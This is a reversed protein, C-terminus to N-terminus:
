QNGLALDHWVDGEAPQTEQTIDEAEDARDASLTPLLLDDDPLTDRMWEEDVIDILIGLSLEAMRLRSGGPRSASRGGILWDDSSSTRPSSSWDDSSRSRANQSWSNESKFSRGGRRDDDRGSGGWSGGSSSRGGRSMGGRSNGRERNFRGYNDSPPGDDQLTPMKTVRTVSNGPPLQKNLLEKAIEEPLDFVAGSVREDTIIHIRGVEDAAAPCVDSLFGTVSRASLYGRSMSEDRTFQLTVLGQEHTILSRSTPPKSFGSLQALAAALAKTGQEEFLKQATPIFFEVSDPHVGNLTSVVQSFYQCALSLSETILDNLMSRKSTPTAAPIAHLKIGEALKEDQDGVQIPFLSTIGRQALTEVLKQPLGLKTVALEDDSVAEAGDSESEYEVEDLALNGKTFGGLGKFAEESLISNPTAIASTILSSVSQQRARRLSSDFFLRGNFGKSKLCGCDLLSLSPTTNSTVRVVQYVSSVGIISSSSSAM